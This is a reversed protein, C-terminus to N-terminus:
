SAAQLYSRQEALAVLRKVEGLEEHDIEREVLLHSILATARGQFLSNTLEGVMSSRVVPETVEAKYIFQRGVTRHSVVGRKELRTLLTAVTTQALSRDPMLGEQVDVVTCEGRDWLLRVIALQLDTLHVPIQM